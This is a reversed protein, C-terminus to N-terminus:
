VAVLPKCFIIVKHCVDIVPNIYNYNVIMEKQIRTVGDAM